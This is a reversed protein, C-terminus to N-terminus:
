VTGTVSISGPYYPCLKQYPFQTFFNLVDKQAIFIKFALKQHGGGCIKIEITKFAHNPSSFAKCHLVKWSSRGESMSLPKELNGAQNWHIIKSGPCFTAVRTHSRLNRESEAVRTPM